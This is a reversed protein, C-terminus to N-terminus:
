RNEKILAQQFQAIVADLERKTADALTNFEQERATFDVEKSKAADLQTALLARDTKFSEADKAAKELTEVRSILPDLSEELARLANQLRATTTKMDASDNM